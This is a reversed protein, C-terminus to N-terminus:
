SINKIEDYIKVELNKIFDDRNLGPKIPELFSIIIKGPYKIIGTKPWVKGSNLAVAYKSDFKESAFVLLISGELFNEMTHWDETDIILCKNASDLKFVKKEKDNDFFLVNGFTVKSGVKQDLFPIKIREGEKILIQTGIYDVLAYM